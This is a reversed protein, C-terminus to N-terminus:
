STDSVAFGFRSAMKVTGRPFVVEALGDQIDRLRRRYTRRFRRVLEFLRALLRRNTGTFHVVGQSVRPETDVPVHPTRQLASQLCNTPLGSRTRAGVLLRRTREQVTKLKLYWDAKSYGAKKALTPVSLQVEVREPWKKKDFWEDPREVVVPSFLFEPVSTAGMLEAPDEVIGAAVPNLMIYVATTLEAEVDTAAIAQSRVNPDVVKGKMDWHNLLWKGFVGNVFQEFDSVRSVLANPDRDQVQAHPHNGMMSWGVIEMDYDALARGVIFLYAETIEPDPPTFFRGDRYRCVTHHSFCAFKPNPLTM